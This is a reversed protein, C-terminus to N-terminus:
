TNDRGKAQMKSYTRRGFLPEGEPMKWNDAYYPKTHSPMVLLRIPQREGFTTTMYALHDDYFMHIDLQDLLVAKCAEGYTDYDASHINQELILASDDLPWPDDAIFNNLRLVQIIKERPHMDSIVHVEHAGRVLCRVLERFESPYKSLVGGIDFAVRM